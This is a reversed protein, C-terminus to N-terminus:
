APKRIATMIRALSIAAAPRTVHVGDLDFEPLLYGDPAIADWTSVFPIGNSVAFAELVRNAEVTIKARLLKDVIKGGTWTAARQNDATRPPLAHMVLRAIGHAKLWGITTTFPGLLEKLRMEVMDRPILTRAPDLPYLSQGPLEFDYNEDMQSFLEYHIDMDGAFMVLCTFNADRALATVAGNADVLAMDKLNQMVTPNLSGKGADAYQSATVNQMFRIIPFFIRGDDEYKSLLSAYSLVHSEGLFYVPAANSIIQVSM